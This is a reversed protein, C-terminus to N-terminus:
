FKPLTERWAPLESLKEFWRRINGYGELPMQAQQAYILPAAVSFDALTLTDNVLYPHDALRRDLVPAERHFAETAKALVAEDPPQGAKLVLPKVLREVIMPAVGAQWHALQWSQWRAIDARSKADDPWLPTKTKSGLYQLIANSEWLKLDGDVLVPTRGTPNIALFADTRQQGKTLDIIELDLPVGMHKAAALVKFTNPSPPFCHLKM